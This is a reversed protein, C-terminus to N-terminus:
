TDSNLNVYLPALLFGAILTLPKLWLEVPKILSYNEPFQSETDSEILGLLPLLSEQELLAAARNKTHTAAIM